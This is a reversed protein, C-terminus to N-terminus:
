APGSGADLLPPWDPAANSQPASGAIAQKAVAARHAAHLMLRDSIDPLAQRVLGV